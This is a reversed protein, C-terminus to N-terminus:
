NIIKNNMIMIKKTIIIKQHFIIKNIKKKINKIEKMKKFLYKKTKIIIKIIIILLLILFINNNSKIKYNLNYTEKIKWFLIV